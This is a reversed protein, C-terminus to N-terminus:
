AVADRERFLWRHLFLGGGALPFLLMSVAQPLTLGWFVIENDRTFELVFRGVCYLSVFVLVLAGPFRQSRWLWLMIGFLVVAAGVSYLQSPHVPLSSEAMPSILGLDLHRIYAPSGVIHGALDVHLPFRVAWPVETIRGYCCGRCFCGLRGFALGLPAAVSVADLLPRLRMRALRAFVLIGVLALILGGYFVQGGASIDFAELWGGSFSGVHQFVYAARGGVLILVAMLLMLHAMKRADIGDRKGLWMALAGAVAIGSGYLLPYAPIALGGLRILYPHM